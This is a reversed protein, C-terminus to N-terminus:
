NTFLDEFKLTPASTACQGGSTSGDSNWGSVEEMAKNSTEKINAEGYDAIKTSEGLVQDSRTASDQIRFVLLMPLLDLPGFTAGSVQEVVELVVGVGQCLVDPLGVQFREGDDSLVHTLLLATNVSYPM